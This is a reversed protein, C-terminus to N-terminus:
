GLKWSITISFIIRWSDHPLSISLSPPLSHCYSQFWNLSPDTSCCPFSVLQASSPPSSSFLIFTPHPSCPQSHPPLSPQCPFDCQRPRCEKVTHRHPKTCIFSFSVSTHLQVKHWWMLFLQMVETTCCEQLVCEAPRNQTKWGRQVWEGMVHTYALRWDNHCYQWASSTYKHTSVCM